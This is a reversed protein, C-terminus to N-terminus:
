LESKINQKLSADNIMLSIHNNFPLSKFTRPFRETAKVKTKRTRNVLENKKISSLVFQTPVM